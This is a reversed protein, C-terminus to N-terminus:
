LSHVVVLRLKINNITKMIVTNVSKLQRCESILFSAIIYLYAILHSSDDKSPLLYSRILINIQNWDNLSTYSLVVRFSLGYVYLIYVFYGWRHLVLSSRWNQQLLHWYSPRRQHQRRTYPAWWLPLQLVVHTSHISLM